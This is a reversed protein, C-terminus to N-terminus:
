PIQPSEGEKCSASIFLDIQEIILRLGNEYFCKDEPQIGLIGFVGRVSNSGTATLIEEFKPIFAKGEQKYMALLGKSFLLAFPYPFNYFHFDPFYYHPKCIWMFPHKEDSMGNGYAFKQASLLLENLQSVTLPKEKRKEFLNTEFTYRALIEILMQTANLLDNELIAFKTESSAKEFLAETVLSQCLISATEAMPMTYDTNLITQHNLKEYHYGHGLEHALTVLNYFTGTFNIFIRSQRIAHINCCFSGSEKGDRPEMDIWGNDFAKKAYNGLDESFAYFTELIFDRADEYTFHLDFHGMPAYLDYFPLAGNHGLLAAKKLLYKRFHPRAEIITAFMADLAPKDIRSDLLTMDLPSAFNRAKAITIAEGKIGNLCAASAAAIKRYAKLEGKYAAKRVEQSQAYALNRTVSLPTAKNEGGIYVDATLSDTLSNHLQEFAYSGTEQMEGLLLEMDDSLLHCSQEKLDTLFFQHEILLPQSQILEDLHDLQNLYRLFPINIGNLSPMLQQIEEELKKARTKDEDVSKRLRAYSNLKLLLGNIENIINVHYVLKYAPNEMDSLFTKYHQTTTQILHKARNLDDKLAKSDFSDYILSLDWRLEM